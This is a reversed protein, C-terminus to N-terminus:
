GPARIATKLEADTGPSGLLAPKAGTEISDAQGRLALFGRGREEYIQGTYQQAADIDAQYDKM